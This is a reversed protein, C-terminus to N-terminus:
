CRHHLQPEHHERKRYRRRQRATVSTPAGSVDNLADFRPRGRLLRILSMTQLRKCPASTGTEITPVCGPGTDATSTRSLREAGGRSLLLTTPASDTVAVPTGEPPKQRSRPGDSRGGLAATVTPSRMIARRNAQPCSARSGARRVPPRLGERCHVPIGVAAVLENRRQQQPCAQVPPRRLHAAGSQAPQPPIDRGVAAAMEGEWSM